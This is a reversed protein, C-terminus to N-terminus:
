RPEVAPRRLRLPGQRLLAAARPGPGKFGGKECPTAVIGRGPSTRAPPSCRRCSCTASRCATSPTATSRRTRRQVRRQDEQLAPDVPEGHREARCTTRRRGHGGAAASAPASSSPWPRTTARRRQLGGVAAQLGATGATGVSLATFGPVTALVVVQCGAAKLAGIQPAVNTNSTVYTQKAAVARRASCRRSAPWATGASTTTRASSASRRAPWTRRSTTPSSRARSRTTPTSRRVHGPVQGAPELQPQRLRRVPGAGPQEQPLRARRHPDAHGSRQPHRLGQGAPRAPPGGTQTNAPNYGDDM